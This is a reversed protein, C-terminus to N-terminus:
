FSDPLDEIVNGLNVRISDVTSGIEQDYNKLNYVVNHLSQYVEDSNKVVIDIEGIITNISSSFDLYKDQMNTMFVQLSDHKEELTKALDHLKEAIAIIGPNEVEMNISEISANVALLNGSNTLSRIDALIVQLEQSSNDYWSMFDTSTGRLIKLNDGYNTAFGSSRDVLHGLQEIDNSLNGFNDIAFNVGVKLKDLQIETRSLSHALALANKNFRTSFSQLEVVGAVPIRTGVFSTGFEASFESIQELPKYFVSQLYSKAIAIAFVGIMAMLVGLYFDSSSFVNASEEDLTNLGVGILIGSMILLFRHIREADKISGRAKIFSRYFTISGYILIIFFATTASTSNLSTM